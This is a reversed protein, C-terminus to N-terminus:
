KFEEEEEKSPSINSLIVQDEKPFKLSHISPYNKLTFNM